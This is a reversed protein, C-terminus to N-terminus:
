TRNRQSDVSRVVHLVWRSPFGCFFVGRGALRRFPSSAFHRGDCKPRAPKHSSGNCCKVLFVLFVCILHLLPLCSDVEWLSALKFVPKGIDNRRDEISLVKSRTDLAQVIFAGEDDGDFFLIKVQDALVIWLPAFQKEIERDEISKSQRVSFFTKANCCPSDIEYLIGDDQFRHVFDQCKSRSEFVLRVSMSGATCHITDPGSDAPMNSQNKVSIISGSRLGKTTNNAFSGYCSPM